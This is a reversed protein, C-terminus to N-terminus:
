KAKKLENTQTQILCDIYGKLQKQEDDGLSHILSLWSEDEQMKQNYITDSYVPILSDVSIGIGDNYVRVKVNFANVLRIYTLDDIGELIDYSMAKMTQAIQKLVLSRNAHIESWNEYIGIELLYDSPVGLIKSLTRLEDPNPNSSGREWNSITGGKVNLYMALEDQKLGRLLRIEKIKKGLM